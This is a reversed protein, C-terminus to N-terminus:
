LLTIFCIKLNTLKLDIKKEKILTYPCFQKCVDIYIKEQIKKHVNILKILKKDINVTVLRCM